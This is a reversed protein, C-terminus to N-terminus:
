FIAQCSKDTQIRVSKLRSWSRQNCTCAQSIIYHIHSWGEQAATTLSIHTYPHTLSLYKWLLRIYLVTQEHRKKSLPFFFYCISDIKSVYEHSHKHFYQEYSWAIATSVCEETVRTMYLMKPRCHCSYSIWLTIYSFHRVNEEVCLVDFGPHFM